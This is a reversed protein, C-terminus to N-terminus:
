AQNSPSEEFNIDGGYGPLKGNAERLKRKYDVLFVMVTDEEGCYGAVDVPTDGIKTMTLIAGAKLLREVMTEDSQYSAWHLPTMKIKPTKFNVKAGEALLIEVCEMRKKKTEATKAVMGEAGLYGKYCVLFLASRGNHDEEDIDVNRDHARWNDIIWRLCTPNGHMAAKHLPLDGDEDHANFIQNEQGEEKANKLIDDLISPNGYAGESVIGMFALEHKRVEAPGSNSCCSSVSGM